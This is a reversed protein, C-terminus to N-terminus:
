KAGPQKTAIGLRRAGARRAEKLINQVAEYSVGEDARVVVMLADGDTQIRQAIFAFLEAHAIVLEDVALHGDLGLTVNIRADSEASRTQATPLSIPMDSVTIMPATILLIIVLVLAVDIIPTVNIKAVTPALEVLSNRM